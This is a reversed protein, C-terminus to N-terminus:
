QKYKKNRYRLIPLEVFRYMMESLTLTLVCFLLVKVLGDMTVFSVRQIGLLVISYNILYIAYSRTSLYEITKKIWCLPVKLELVYPFIMGLSIVLLQLYVFVYFALNKQPELYFIAISIHLMFFIFLGIVAITKKYEIFVSTYKRFFYVLLFGVYIADLRYIVVKRFLSSWEKYSHIEVTNYFNIKLLVGLFIFAITTWLFMKTPSRKKFFVIIVYLILPLVLYAYEEISLSWAETFFDPHATIINQLFLLYLGIDSVLPEKLLYFILLNVILVVTYNPITRLWRRKWFILLDSFNTKYSNMLKLLIGGILFGSLVFFLDVGIAGFVRVLTILKNEIEPFLLYTSHSIVVLLIAIARLV